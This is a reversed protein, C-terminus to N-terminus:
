ARLATLMDEIYEDGNAIVLMMAYPRLQALSKALAEDSTNDSGLVLVTTMVHKVGCAEGIIAAAPANEGAAAIMVVLDATAIEDVLNKTRGALDKLWGDISFKQADRPTTFASATFFAARSWQRAALHKAVRESRADLAIVKVNRPQSNPADIRFKAEAATTARACGGIM